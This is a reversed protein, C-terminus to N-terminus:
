RRRFQEAGQADSLEIDAASVAAASTMNYSSGAEMEWVEAERLPLYLRAACGGGDRQLFMLMGGHLAAIRRAYPIGLGWSGLQADTQRWTNNMRALAQPTMGAGDDDVCFRLNEEEQQASLVLQVDAGGHRLSNSVLTMLAALLLEEDARFCVDQQPSRVEAQVGRKELQERVRAMFARLSCESWHLPEPAGFLLQTHNAQRLIRLAERRIMAGDEAMGDLELMDAQMLLHSASDRLRAAALTVGVQQPRSDQFLLLADQRVPVIRMDWQHDFIRVPLLQETGSEICQRITQCAAPELVSEISYFGSDELLSRCPRTQRLVMLQASVLAIPQQEADLGHCVAKLLAGRQEEALGDFFAGIEGSMDHAPRQEEPRQEEPPNEVIKM